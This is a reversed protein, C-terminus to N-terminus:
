SGNREAEARVRQAAQLLMEQSVRGTVALALHDASWLITRIDGDRLYHFEEGEIPMPQIYVTLRKGRDDNYMLLAAPAGSTPLLRGGMLRWGLGALDPPHVPRDLRTSLWQALYAGEEARVEIPHRVEPTFTAYAAAAISGANQLPNPSAPRHAFWGATASGGVLLLVAAARALSAWTRSRQQALMPAIRLRAPLPEEFKARLAEALQVDQEQYRALRDAVEPHAALYAEVVAQRAPPLRRDVWAVLDDEGIPPPSIPETM